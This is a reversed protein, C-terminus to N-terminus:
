VTWGVSLIENEHSGALCATAEPGSSAVRFFESLPDSEVGRWGVAHVFPCARDRRTPFFSIGRSM